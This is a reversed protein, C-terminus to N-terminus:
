KCLDFLLLESDADAVIVLDEEAEIKAADGTKLETGNVRVEGSVLHVYGLRGPRFAHSVQEGPRLLSAFLSADQHISVSGERGNSSAVLRLRGRKEDASFYKQEYSPQVGTRIPMIWIQLFHVGEDPSPNFESHQVGTGASMRQVDGPRIIEGNGMSDKHQLQGSLVYSVIEMDRHSHTGFGMGPQVRDENIVRLPGWGMEQPNYYEAFSFSHDSKLWGHDAHGRDSSKRLTIM